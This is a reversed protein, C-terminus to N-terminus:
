RSRILAAGLRPETEAIRISLYPQPLQVATSCLDRATRQTRDTAVVGAINRDNRILELAVVRACSRKERTMRMLKVGKYEDKNMMFTTATVICCVVYSAKRTDFKCEHLSM